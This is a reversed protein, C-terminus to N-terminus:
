DFIIHVLKKPKITTVHSTTNRIVYPNVQSIPIVSINRVHVNTIDVTVGNRQEKLM